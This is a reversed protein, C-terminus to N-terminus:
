HKCMCETEMFQMRSTYWTYILDQNGVMRIHKAILHKPHHRAYSALFSCCASSIDLQFSQHVFARSLYSVIHIGLFFFFASDLWVVGATVPEYVFRHRCGLM